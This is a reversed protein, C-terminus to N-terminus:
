LSSTRQSKIDLTVSARPGDSYHNGFFQNPGRVWRGLYVLPVSIGFWLILLAFLTGFPVAGSSHKAWVILNLVFFVGFNYGPFALATVLTNKRWELLGFM